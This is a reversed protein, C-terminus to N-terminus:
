LRSRKFIVEPLHVIVLMIFRWFWRTYVVGRGKDLARLIDAAGQEPTATLRAPLDLGETMRTAVFGPKVTIVKVGTKGFRNRLGSLYASVGAKAAGYLYNAARGRDGAVSSIGIIFGKGSNELHQAALNLLSICGTLNTDIIRRAEAFDSQGRVQDGLYGAACVIGYPKPDLEAWFGAHSDFDLVDLYLARTPVSFRLELDAAARGLSERDRGALQLAYGRQALGRAVALAIDSTAGLILVNKM